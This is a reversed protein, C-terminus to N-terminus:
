PRGDEKAARLMEDTLPSLPHEKRLVRIRALLAEPDVRRGQSSAELCTLIESNLSRRHAKATRKLQAFLEDPINKLTITPM